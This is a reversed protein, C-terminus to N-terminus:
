IIQILYMVILYVEIASLGDDEDDSSDETNDSDGGGAVNDKENTNNNFKDVPPNTLPATSDAGLNLTENKDQISLQRTAGPMHRTVPPTIHQYNVFSM